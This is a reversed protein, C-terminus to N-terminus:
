NSKVKRFLLDAQKTQLTAHDYAVWIIDCLCFGRDELFTIIEGQTYPRPEISEIQSEFLVFETQDLIKESGKLVELEFGEVDIKLGFPAPLNSNEVILDLTKVDVSVINVARDQHEERFIFSSSGPGDVYARFNETTNKSGAGIKAAIGERQRLITDMAPWSDASPDVLLLKADPFAEYLDPTGAGIGVDILTRIQFNKHLRKPEWGKRVIEFGGAKFGANVMLRALRRVFVFNM